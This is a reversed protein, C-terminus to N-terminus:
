PLTSGYSHAPDGGRASSSPEQIAVHLAPSWVTSTGCLNPAAPVLLGSAAPWPAEGLRKPKSGSSVLAPSGGVRGKPTVGDWAPGLGSSLM